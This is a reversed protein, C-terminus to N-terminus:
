PLRAHSSYPSQHSLAYSLKTQSTPPFAFILSNSILNISKKVILSPSQVVGLHLLFPRPFAQNHPTTTTRCIEDGLRETNGKKRKKSRGRGSTLDRPPRKHFSKKHYITHNSPKNLNSNKKTQGHTDQSTYATHM